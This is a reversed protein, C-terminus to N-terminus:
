AAVGTAMLTQFGAWKFKNTQYKESLSYENLLFDSKQHM